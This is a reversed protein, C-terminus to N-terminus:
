VCNCRQEEDDYVYMLRIEVEIGVGKMVKANRENQRFILLGVFLVFPAVKM